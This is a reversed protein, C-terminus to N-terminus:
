RLRGSSMKQYKGAAMVHDAVSEIEEDNNCGRTVEL